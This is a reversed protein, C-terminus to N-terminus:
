SLTEALFRDIASLAEPEDLFPAHGRGEITVHTLAPHRGAMRTLTEATLIDSNAGRVVLMRVAELAEFMPWLDIPAGDEPLSAAVAARLDPDYSLVPRGGDDDHIQRAFREWARASLGPFARENAARLALAAGAFDAAEPPRGLYASIRALGRTEVTAGVDNLVLGAVLGPRGAAIAMGLIGGRSTGVIALRTLGLHDILGIADGAEVPVSYELVPDEARDSGGRGRSDLRIVRYRDALHAALPGFDRHNRTLGALCLVAPRDGGTDEYHLGRGDAAALRPM